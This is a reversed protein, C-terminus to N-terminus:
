KMKANIGRRRKTCHGNYKVKNFVGDRQFSQLQHRYRQTAAINESCSKRLKESLSEQFKGMELEVESKERNGNYFNL